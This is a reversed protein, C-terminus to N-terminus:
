VVPAIVISISLLLWEKEKVESVGVGEWKTDMHHVNQFRWPNGWRMMGFTILLRPVLSFVISEVHVHTCRGEEELHSPPDLM